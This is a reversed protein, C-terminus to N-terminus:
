TGKKPKPKRSELARKLQEQRAKKQEPTVPESTRPGTVRVSESVSASQGGAFDPINTMGPPPANRVTKLVIDDIVDQGMQPFAKGLAQKALWESHEPRVMQLLYSQYVQRSLGEALRFEKQREAKNIDVSLGKLQEMFAENIEGGKMLYNYANDVDAWLSTRFSLQADKDTARGNHAVKLHNTIANRQELTTEEGNLTAITRNTGEINEKMKELNERTNMGTVLTNVEANMKDTVQLYEGREMRATTAARYETTQALRITAMLIDFAKENDSIAYSKVAAKFAAREQDNRAMAIIPEFEKMRHEIRAEQITAFDDSGYYEGTDMDWYDVGGSTRMERVVSPLLEPPASAFKKVEESLTVPISGTGQVEAPVNPDPVAPPPIPPPPYGFAGAAMNIAAAQEAPSLGMAKIGAVRKEYGARLQADTDTRDLSEVHSAPKLAMLKRELEVANTVPPKQEETVVPNEKDVVGAQEATKADAPHLPVDDTAGLNDNVGLAQAATTAGSTIVQAAALGEPSTGKGAPLGAMLAEESENRAKTEPRAQVEAVLADHQAAGAAADPAPAEGPRSPTFAAGGGAPAPAQGPQSPAPQAGAPAPAEGPRSPTFEGGPPPAMGPAPPMGAQTAVRRAVDPPMTGKPTVMIRYQRALMGRAAEFEEPLESLKWAERIQKFGEQKNKRVDDLRRQEDLRYKQYNLAQTEDHARQDYALRAVAEGHEDTQKDRFRDEQIEFQRSQERERRRDALDTYMRGKQQSALKEWELPDSAPTIFHEPSFPVNDEAALAVRLPPEALAALVVM